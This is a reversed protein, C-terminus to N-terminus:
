ELVCIQLAWDETQTRDKCKLSSHRDQCEEDTACILTCHGEEIADPPIYCFTGEPCGSETGPGIKYCRQVCQARDSQGKGCLLTGPCSKDSTCLTNIAAAEDTRACGGVLVLSALSFSFTLIWRM